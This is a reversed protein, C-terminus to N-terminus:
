LLLIALLVGGTLGLTGYVRGLRKREGVACALCSQMRVRALSLAQQQNEGGYQGLVGGLAALISRADCELEMPIEDLATSWLESLSYEGLRNMDRYCRAFFDSVPPAASRELLRFLDPMSTLRFALEREMTELAGCIERLNKVRRELRVTASFGLMAAGGTLLVTGVLRLM